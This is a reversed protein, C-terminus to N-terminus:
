GHRLCPSARQKWSINNSKENDHHHKNNEVLTIPNKMVKLYYSFPQRLTEWTQPHTEKYTCAINSFKIVFFVHKSSWAYLAITHNSTISCICIYHASHHRLNSNSRWCISCDFVLQFLNRYISIGSQTNIELKWNLSICVCCISFDFM